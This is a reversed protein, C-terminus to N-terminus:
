HSGISGTTKGSQRPRTITLVPYNRSLLLAEKEIIRPVYTM